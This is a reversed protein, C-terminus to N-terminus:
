NLDYKKLKYIELVEEWEWYLQTLLISLIKLQKQFNPLALSRNDHSHFGIHKNWKSKIIKSLRKVEVHDM